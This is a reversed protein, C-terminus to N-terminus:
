YAFLPGPVLPRATIKVPEALRERLLLSDKVYAPAYPPLPLLTPSAALSAFATLTTLPLSEPQPVAALAMPPLGLYSLVLGPPLPPTGPATMTESITEGITEPPPTSCRTSATSQTDSCADRSGPKFGDAPTQPVRVDTIAESTVGFRLKAARLRSSADTSAGKAVTQQEATTATVGLAAAQKVGEAARKVQRKAHRHLVETRAADKRRMKEGAECLHCFSCSTGAKCGASTHFFACPRCRRKAHGTSGLSALEAGWQPPTTAPALTNPLMAQLQLGPPPAVAKFAEPVSFGLVEGHPPSM